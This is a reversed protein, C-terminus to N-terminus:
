NGLMSHPIPNGAHAVFVVMPASGPTASLSPDLALLGEPQEPYRSGTTKWEILCRTADLYGIAGCLRERLTSWASALAKALVDDAESGMPRSGITRAAACGSWRDWSDGTSYELPALRVFFFGPTLDTYRTLLQDVTVPQLCIREGHLQGRIAKEDVVFCNQTMALTLFSSGCPKPPVTSGAPCREGTFEEPQIIAFRVAFFPKQPHYRYFCREVRVLFLGEPIEDKYQAKQHLGPIERRM